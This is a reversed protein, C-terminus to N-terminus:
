DKQYTIEHTHFLTPTVYITPFITPISYVNSKSGVRQTGVTIKTGVPIYEKIIVSNWLPLYYERFRIASKLNPFRHYGSKYPVSPIHFSYRQTQIVTHCNDKNIGLSLYAGQIYTMNLNTKQYCGYVVTKRKLVRVEKVLNLCM